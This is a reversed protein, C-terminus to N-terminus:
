TIKEKRVNNIYIPNPKLEPDASRRPTSSTPSTAAVAAVLVAREPAAPPTVASNVFRNM